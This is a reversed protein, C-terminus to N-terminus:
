PCMIIIIDQEKHTIVMKKMTIITNGDCNMKQTKFNYTYIRM